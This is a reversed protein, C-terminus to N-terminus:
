PGPKNEPCATQAPIALQLQAKILLDYRGSWALDSRARLYYTKYGIVEPSTKASDHVTHTFGYYTRQLVYDARAIYQETVIDGHAIGPPAGM